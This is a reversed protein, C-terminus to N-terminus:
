VLMPEVVARIELEIDAIPKTADIATVPENSIEIEKQFGDAVQQLFNDSRSEIRDTQDGVRQAAIEPDLQFVFTMDPCTGGVALEGIKRIMDPELGGAHGQYVVSAMQFRDCVVVKGEALAPRIVENVLQARSAMFLFLEAELDLRISKQNLLLDRISEGLETGGPERCQVVQKGKVDELWHCFRDMQTSKGAGDIGDFSFFM